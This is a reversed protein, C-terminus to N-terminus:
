AGSAARRTGSWGREIAEVVDPPTLPRWEEAEEGERHVYVTFGGEPEVIAEIAVVGSEWEFQVAGDGTITVFTSNRFVSDEAVSASLVQGLVAEAREEVEETVGTGGHRSEAAIRHLRGLTRVQTDLDQTVV